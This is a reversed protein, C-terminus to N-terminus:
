QYFSSTSRFSRLEEVLLELMGLYLRCRFNQQSPYESQGDTIQDVYSALLLVVLNAPGLNCYICM